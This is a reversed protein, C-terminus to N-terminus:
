LDRKINVPRKQYECTEKSICLAREISIPRKGCVHRMRLCIRRKQSANIQNLASLDRKIYKPRKQYM